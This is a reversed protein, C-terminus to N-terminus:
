PVIEFSISAISDKLEVSPLFLLRNQKVDHVSLAEATDKGESSVSVRFSGFDGLRISQGLKLFTPMVDILTSLVNQVDGRALSTRQVIESAIEKMGVTGSINPSLYWKVQDPDRPIKRQIKKLKISM